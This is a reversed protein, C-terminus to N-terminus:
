GFVAQLIVGLTLNQIPSRAVITQGAQWNASIDRTIDFILQGYARLQEGHFPPMLLKRQRKHPVGDLLLISQKGVMAELVGNGQGTVVKDDDLAFIEKVVAPEGVYVLPSPSDSGIQFMPGYRQVSDDMYKTPNLILHLVRLMGRIGKAKPGDITRSTLQSATVTDVAQNTM